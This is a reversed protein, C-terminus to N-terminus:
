SVGSQCAEFLGVDKGIRIPGQQAIVAKIYHQFRVLEDETLTGTSRVYAVLPLAKLMHPSTAM